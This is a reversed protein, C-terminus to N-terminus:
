YHILCYGKIQQIYLTMIITSVRDKDALMNSFFLYVSFYFLLFIPLFFLLLFSFFFKLMIQWSMLISWCKLRGQFSSIALVLVTTVINHKRLRYYRHNIGALPSAITSAATSTCLLRSYLKDYWEKSM